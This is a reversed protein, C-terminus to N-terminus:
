IEKWGGKNIMINARNWYYRVKDKASQNALIKIQHKHPSVHKKVEDPFIEKAIDSWTLKPHEKKLDFVRLYKEYEDWHPRPRKLNFKRYKAEKEIFDLLRTFDKFINEKKRNLHIKIRVTKDENNVANLLSFFREPKRFQDGHQKRWKDVFRFYEENRALYNLAVSKLGKQSGYIIEISPVGAIVKKLESLFADKGDKMEEIKPILPRFIRFNPFARFMREPGIKGGKYDQYAKSRRFFEWRFKKQKKEEDDRKM